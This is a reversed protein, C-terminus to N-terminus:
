KSFDYYKSFLQLYANFDTTILECEKEFKGWLISGFSVITKTEDNFAVFLDMRNDTEKKYFSYGRREAFVTKSLTDMNDFMYKKADNYSQETYKLYILVLEKTDSPSDEFYYFGNKDVTEFEKAFFDFSDDKRPLLDRCLGLSSTHPGIKEFGIVEYKTTCGTFLLLVSIVLAFVILRSFIKKVM